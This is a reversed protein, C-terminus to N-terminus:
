QFVVSVHENKVAALVEALAKRHGAKTSERYDSANLWKDQLEVLTDATNTALRYFKLAKDHGFLREVKEAHTVAVDELTSLSEHDGAAELRRAEERWELADAFSIGRDELAKPAERLRKLEDQIRAVVTRKRRNAEARDGTQLSKRIHTQRLQKELTRPVRVRAYYTGGVKQLYQDPNGRKTAM